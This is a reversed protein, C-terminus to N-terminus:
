RISEPSGCLSKADEESSRSSSLFCLRIFFNCVLVILIFQLTVYFYVLTQKGIIAVIILFITSAAVSIYLTNEYFPLM